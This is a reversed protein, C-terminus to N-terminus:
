DAEGDNKQDARSQEQRAEHAQHPDIDTEIIVVDQGDPDIGLEVEPVRIRHLLDHRSRALEHGSDELADSGNGADLDGRREVVPEWQRAIPAPRAHLNWSSM